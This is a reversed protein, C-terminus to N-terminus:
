RVPTFWAEDFQRLNVNKVHGDGYLVNWRGAEYSRGGHWAGSADMMINTQSPQALTSPGLGEFAVETRWHYSSGLAEFAIPEGPIPFPTAELHDYGTDASCHLVERNKVYPQIADKLRPMYPLWAQWRPFGDWIQPAYADAADKAWPYRDDWDSAYMEHAQGLQKLNSICQTRRAAARARAFVPFIVAALIAIIGIVVLMEILTFGRRPM